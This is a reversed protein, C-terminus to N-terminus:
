LGAVGIRLINRVSEPPEKRLHPELVADLTPGRRMVAAALRHAASRDRPELSAVASFADELSRRHELVASLLDFAGERTPDSM